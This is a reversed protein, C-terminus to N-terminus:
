LHRLIRILIRGTACIGWLEFREVPRKFQELRHITVRKPVVPGPGILRFIVGGFSSQLVLNPHLFSCINRNERVLQVKWPRAMSKRVGDNPSYIVVLAVPRKRGRPPGGRRARPRGQLVRCPSLPSPVTTINGLTAPPRPPPPVTRYPVTRYPVTRYPVTCYAGVLDESRSARVTGLTVRAGNRAHRFSFVLLGDGTM